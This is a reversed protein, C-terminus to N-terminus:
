QNGESKNEDPTVDIIDGYVESILSNEDSSGDGVVRGANIVVLETDAGPSINVAIPMKQHMYPAIANCCKLWFEAAAAKKLGTAEAIRAFDPMGLDDTLNVVKAMGVLPGSGFTNLYKVMEETSRNVAGKPRGAKGTREASVGARARNDSCKVPDDGLLSGQAPEVPLELGTGHDEIHKELAAKGSM